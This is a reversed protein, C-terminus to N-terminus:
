KYKVPNEVDGNETGASHFKRESYPVGSFVANKRNYIQSCPCAMQVSVAIGHKAASAYLLDFASVFLATGNRADFLRPVFCIVEAKESHTPNPM